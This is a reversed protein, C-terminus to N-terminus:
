TYRLNWKLQSNSAKFVYVNKRSLGWWEQKYELRIRCIELLWIENIWLSELPYPLLRFKPPDSFRLLYWWTEASPELYSLMTHMRLVADPEVYMLSAHILWKTQIIYTNQYIDFDKWFLSAFNQLERTPHIGFRQIYINGQM